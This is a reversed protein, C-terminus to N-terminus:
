DFEVAVITQSVATADLIRPRNLVSYALTAEGPLPSSSDDTATLHMTMTTTEDDFGPSFSLTATAPNGATPSFTAFAPVGSSGWTVTVAAEGSTAEFNVEVIDGERMTVGAPGTITPAPTLVEFSSALVATSGDVREVVVDWLGAAAGDLDFTGFLREPSSFVASAVVDDEGPKELRLKSGPRLSVGSLELAVLEGSRGETPAHTSLAFADMTASQHGEIVLSYWQGGNVLAGKHSVTLTVNGPTGGASVIVQEIPDV